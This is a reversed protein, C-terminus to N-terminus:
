LFLHIILLLLLVLPSLDVNAVLPVFRRIPRLLPDALGHVIPAIPAHPNVWSLLASFIVVGILLFVMMRLLEIFGVGFMLPLLSLGLSAGRLSLELGVALTQVLWAGVLSALDLGMLGPVVKRLPMVLWNTTTAIFQGLQNRPSIRQWQMFFRALLLITLFSTLATLLLLLINALM